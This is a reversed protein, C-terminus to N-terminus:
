GDAQDKLRVVERQAKKMRAVHAALARENARRQRRSPPPTWDDRKRGLADYQQEGGDDAGPASVAAGLRDHISETM